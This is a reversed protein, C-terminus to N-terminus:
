VRKELAPDLGKWMSDLMQRAERLAATGEGTVEVCRRPKGGREPTSEGLWSTVLGKDELRRLTVYVASRSVPRGTRSEIEDVIPVAYVDQGLQLIALLVLQEFEGLTDRGM